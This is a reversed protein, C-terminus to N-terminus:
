AAKETKTDLGKMRAEYNNSSLYGLPPPRVRNYWGEIFEFISRRRKDASGLALPEPAPNAVRM